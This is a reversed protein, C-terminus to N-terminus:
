KEPESGRHRHTHKPTHVPFRSFFLFLFFSFSRFSSLFLSLSLSLSPPLFLSLSPAPSLSLSLSLSFFFSLSFSVFHPPPLFICLTHSLSLSLVRVRPSLSLSRTLSLSCHLGSESTSAISAIHVALLDPSNSFIVSLLAGFIRLSLLRHCPPPYKAFISRRNVAHQELWGENAAWGYASIHIHTTQTHHQTCTNTSRHFDEHYYEHTRTAFIKWQVQSRWANM